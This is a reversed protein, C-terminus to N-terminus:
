DTPEADATAPTVTPTAHLSVTGVGGACCILAAAVPVRVRLVDRERLSDSHFTSWPKRRCVGLRVNATACFHTNCTKNGGDFGIAVAM